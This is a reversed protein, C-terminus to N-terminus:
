WIAFVRGLIPLELGFSLLISLLKNKNFFQYAANFAILLCYYAEVM